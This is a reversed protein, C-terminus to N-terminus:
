GRPHPGPSPLDLRMQTLGTAPPIPPEVDASGKAAAPRGEGNSARSRRRLAARADEETVTRRRFGALAFRDCTTEGGAGADRVEWHYWHMWEHLYLFRLVEERTRFTVGASIPVFRIREGPLRRAAHEIIEGFPLFPEPIQLTTRRDEFETLAALHPARQYRLPKVIIDYTMEPLGALAARADEATVLPHRSTIKM